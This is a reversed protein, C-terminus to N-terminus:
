SLYLSLTTGITNITIKIPESQLKTWPVSIALEHIQGSVFTFPLALERELVDLRLSLNQFVAAGSWLSVQTDQLRIDKIYKDVFSLIIPTIYSDKINFVNMKSIQLTFIIIHQHWYNKVIYLTVFIDAAKFSDSSHLDVPHM